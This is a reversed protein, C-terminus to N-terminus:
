FNNQKLLIDLGRRLLEPIEFGSNDAYARAREDLKPKLSVSYVSSESVQKTQQTAQPNKPKNKIRTRSM